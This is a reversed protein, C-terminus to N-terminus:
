GIVVWYRQEDILRDWVAGVFLALGVGSIAFSAGLAGYLLRDDHFHNIITAAGANNAPAIALRVVNQILVVAVFVLGGLGGLLSSAVGPTTRGRGRPGAITMEM